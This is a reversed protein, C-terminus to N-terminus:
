FIYNPMTLAPNWDFPERGESRVLSEFAYKRVYMAPGLDPASMPRYELKPQAKPMCAIIASSRPFWGFATCRPRHFRRIMSM